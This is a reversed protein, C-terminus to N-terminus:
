CGRPLVVAGVCDRMQKESAGQTYVGFTIDKKKDSVHGVVDKVTEVTQGAHRAQTIFWRRASHFNVLSRRKGPRVDDVKLHKRYRNFRKGFTDGPDREESLEHFLWEKPQKDRTRRAIIELLDPHIPVKRAASRTKGQQIDFIDHHVEEVWLTLVEAMRMGSLCSIRLADAIQQQHDDDMGHPYESYLLTKLEAETFPREGENDGREVRRRGSAVEQGLWPNDEATGAVHGRKILYEWYGRLATMHKKATSRDMPEVIETVYRGAAKRTIDPLRYKEGMCWRAFRNILGRRENTTKPALKIASLYADLYHDVPHDGAVARTFRERAKGRLSDAEAEAAWVADEAAEGGETLAEAIAAKSLEGRLEALEESTSIVEGTKVRAFLARVEPELKDRRAIAVKIDGTELSQLYMTTGNFYSRCAQPIAIRFWWTQGKLDLLRKSGKNSKGAM